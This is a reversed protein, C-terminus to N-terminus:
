YTNLAKLTGPNLVELVIEPRDHETTTTCQFTSDQPKRSPNLRCSGSGTGFVVDLRTDIKEANRGTIGARCCAATM